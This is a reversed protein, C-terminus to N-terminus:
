LERAKVRSLLDQAAEIMSKALSLRESQNMLGLDIIQNDLRIEVNADGRGNSIERIIINM